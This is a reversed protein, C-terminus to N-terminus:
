ESVDALNAKIERVEISKANVLDKELSLVLMEMKNAKIETIRVTIEDLSDGVDDKVILLFDAEPLDKDTLNEISADITTIGEFSRINFHTFKRDDVIFEADTVGESVNEREGYENTTYNVGSQTNNLNEGSLVGAADGLANRAVKLLIVGGFVFVLFLILALGVIWFARKEHEEFKVEKKEKKDESM